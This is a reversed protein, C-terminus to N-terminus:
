SQHPGMLARPLPMGRHRCRPPCHLRLAAGEWAAGRIGAPLHILASRPLWLECQRATQQTDVRPFVPCDMPLHHACASLRAAALVASRAGPDGIGRSAESPLHTTAPPLQLSVSVSMPLDEPRAAAPSQLLVPLPGLFDLVKTPNTDLVPTLHPVWTHASITTAPRLAQPRSHQRTPLLQRQVCVINRLGQQTCAKSGDDRTNKPKKLEM